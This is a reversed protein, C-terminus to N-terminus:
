KKETKHHQSSIFSAAAELENTKLVLKEKDFVLIVPFTEIEFATKVDLVYNPDYERASYGGQLISNANKEIEEIQFPSEQGSDYVVTTRYSGKKSAMLGMRKFLQENTMTLIILEDPTDTVKKTQPPNIQVKQGLKLDEWSLREGAENTIITSSLVFAKYSAGWDDIGPGIEDRKAWESIDFDISKLEDNYSSVFGIMENDKYEGYPKNSCGALLIVITLFLLAGSKGLRRM